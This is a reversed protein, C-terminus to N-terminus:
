EGVRTSRDPGGATAAKAPQGVPVAFPDPKVGATIVELTQEDLWVGDIQKGDKDLKEPKVFFQRCGNSYETRGTAIGAFGNITDKVRDGIKM